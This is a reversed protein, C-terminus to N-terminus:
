LTIWRENNLTWNTVDIIRERISKQPIWGMEKM